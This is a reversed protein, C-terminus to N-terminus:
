LHRFVCVRVCAHVWARVCTRVCGGGGVCVCVRTRNVTRCFMPFQVGRFHDTGQFLVGPGDM